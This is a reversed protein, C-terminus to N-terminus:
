PPKGRVIGCPRRFHSEARVDVGEGLRGVGVVGLRQRGEKGGVALQDVFLPVDDGASLRDLPGERGIKWACGFIRSPTVTWDMRKTLGDTAISSPVEVIM